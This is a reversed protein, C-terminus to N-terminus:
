TNPLRETFTVPISENPLLTTKQAIDISEKSTSLTFRPIIKTLLVFIELEALRRGVIINIYVYTNISLQYEGYCGRPGFGFPLSTFPHVSEESKSWRNPNFVKPESFYEKNYCSISM